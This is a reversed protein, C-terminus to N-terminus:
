FSRFRWRTKQYSTITETVTLQDCAIDLM